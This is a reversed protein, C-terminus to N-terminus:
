RPFTVYLQTYYYTGDAARAIGIGTANFPPAELNRRHVPSTLWGGLIERNPDGRSTMGANEAALSFGTVGGGHLRDVPNAGEPSLHALYNRQAMDLSHERAVRDLEALRRLPILHWDSRVANVSEHLSAELSAFRPADRNEARSVQVTLPSLCLVIWFGLLFGAAQGLTRPM